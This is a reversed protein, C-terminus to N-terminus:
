NRGQGVINNSCIKSTRMPTTCTPAKETKPRQICTPHQYFFQCPSTLVYKRTKNGINNSVVTFTVLGIFM